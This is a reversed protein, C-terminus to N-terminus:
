GYKERIGPRRWVESGRHIPSGRRPRRCRFRILFRIQAHVDEAGAAGPSRPTFSTNRRAMRVAGRAADGDLATSRECCMVVFSEAM